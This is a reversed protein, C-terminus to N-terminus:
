VLVPGDWTFEASAEVVVDVTVSSM